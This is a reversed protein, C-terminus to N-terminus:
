TAPRLVLLEIPPPVPWRRWRFCSLWTTDKSRVSQPRSEAFTLDVGWSRYYLCWRWYVHPFSKPIGDVHFPFFIDAAFVVWASAKNKTLVSSPSRFWLRISYHLFVTRNIVQFILPYKTSIQRIDPWTELGAILITSNYHYNCSNKVSVVALIDMTM